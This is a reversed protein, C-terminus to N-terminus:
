QAWTSGSKTFVYAVGQATNKNYAGLLLTTGDSSSAVSFGFFDNAAADSAALKAENWATSTYVYTEGQLSSSGTHKYGGVVVAPSLYTGFAAVRNGFNDGAAGDSATIKDEHGWSTQSYVYAKGKGSSVNPAGVVVFSVDSSIAVSFGFADGSASDSGLLKSPLGSFPTYYAYVSGKGNLTPAGILVDNANVDVAVSAGFFDSASGGADVLKQQQTWSAGSSTFVYAAGQMSHGSYTKYPAGVVLTTGTSSTSLSYGFNDGSGNDSAVPPAAEETWASGSKDYAYIAGRGPAGGVGPAGVFIRGGSYSVAVSWGFSDNAAGNSATLKQAQTWAGGVKTFVYAAGQGPNLGVQKNMAGVVLTSGDGSVAVSYGFQDNNAPDGAALSVFQWQAYLSVNTTGINFKDGPNYLTGSGNAATNWGTFAYGAKVMTGAPLVTVQQNQVYLISDSPVTGGTNGNGYYIVTFHNYSVTFTAQVLASDTMGTNTGVAKIVRTTGDGAIPISATYLTTSVSPTSGDTTYHIAAGATACTLTVSFDIPSTYTGNGAPAPIFQPSAVVQNEAARVKDHIDSLLANPSCAALAALSAAVALATLIRCPRPRNRFAADVAGPLSKANKM